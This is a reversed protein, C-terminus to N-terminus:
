LPTANHAPRLLLRLCGVPPPLSPSLHNGGLGLARRAKRLSARAPRRLGHETLGATAARPAQGSPCGAAADSLEQFDNSM